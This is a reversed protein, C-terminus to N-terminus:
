GGTALHAEEEDLPFSEPVAVTTTGNLVEQGRGNALAFTVSIFQRGGMRKSPGLHATGSIVEGFSIPGCTEVEQITHITGPPLDLKELLEGLAYAALALPLSGQYRDLLTRLHRVGGDINQRPNFTDRVGLLSATDPMLQMLGQAGKRSVAWPDFMSEAWILAEVLKADIGYRSAAERIEAAYRGSRAPPLRLMGSAAGKREMFRQYRPDAPANTYHVVGDEGLLRFSSALAPDSGAFFGLLLLLGVLGPRTTPRMAPLRELSDIIGTGEKL